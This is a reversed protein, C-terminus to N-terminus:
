ARGCRSPRPPPPPARARSLGPLRSISSSLGDSGTWRLGDCIGDQTVSPKTSPASKTRARGLRAATSGAALGAFSAASLLGALGAAAGLGAAPVAGIGVIVLDAPLETGATTVALRVSGGDGRLESVGEGFRFTVGHSRHLGAFVEGLEPGISRYLPAPDPEVVTVECGYERAAAATELGIWGSGAIVVQGGAKLAATLRESDGVTRLYLVGDLDAGPVRLPRPVSGTTILLKDYGVTGGGALTVQRAARDIGTVTEGLRLDVQHQGYWDPEHVYISSKEDKGLLLGKSLPPREYPREQEAGILIVGGGFGEERLTEAAKAGALSAGIIVYTPEAAM